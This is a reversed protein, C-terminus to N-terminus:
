KVHYETFCNRNVTLCLHVKCKICVSSTKLSCKNNKCRQRKSIFQPLHGYGDFRVDAVPLIEFTLQPTIAPSNFGPRGPHIAVLADAVSSQFASLAMPKQQMLMCHRRYWLWSSVLVMNITHYFIYIYWRRTKIKAKYLATLSDLLDVGGMNKNYFNVAAPCPVDVIKKQTKDYRRVNKIPEVGVFSSIIDVKRNDYWRVVIVGSDFEVASDFAGRTEKKLEKESKLECGKKLRNERITGIYHIGKAKLAQVLQVSSFFNDACVKFNVNETLKETMKMVVEGAMGLAPNVNGKGQYVEFDHLIGDIGCRAWLKFGWKKPKNRIFQKINCRGKFGVMIEDVSQAETPLIKELNKRISELWPKIKWIKEDINDNNENNFHIHRALLQFRNRRMYEAVPPYRTEKAWYARVNYAKMLGMRLYLGIFIQIEKVTTKLEIGSKSMGYMNSEMEIKALMDDTILESFFQFPTKLTDPVTESPGTFTVDPIVPPIKLWMPQDFVQDLDGELDECFRHRKERQLKDRLQALPIEDDDEDTDLVCKRRKDGKKKTNQRKRKGTSTSPSDLDDEDIDDDSEDDGPLYEEGSSFFDSENADVIDIIDEYDSESDSAMRTFISFILSFRYNTKM